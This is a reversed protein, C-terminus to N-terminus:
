FPEANKFRLALNEINNIWDGFLSFNSEDNEIERLYSTCINQEM